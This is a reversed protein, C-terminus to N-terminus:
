EWGADLRNPWWVCARARMCLACLCVLACWCVCWCVFGDTDTTHSSHCAAWCTARVGPKLECELRLGRRRRSCYREPVCRFGPAVACETPTADGDDSCYGAAVCPFRTSNQSFTKIHECMDVCQPLRLCPWGCPLSNLGETGKLLDNMVDDCVGCLSHDASSSRPSARLALSAGFSALRALRFVIAVDDVVSLAGWVALIPRVWQLPGMM